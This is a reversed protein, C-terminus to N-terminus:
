HSDTHSLAPASSWREQPETELIAFVFCRMRFLIQSSHFIYYESRMRSIVVM